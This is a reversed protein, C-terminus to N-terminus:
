PINLFSHAKGSHLPFCRYFMLLPGHRLPTVHWTPTQPQNLLCHPTVSFKQSPSHHFWLLAKLHNIQFRTLSFFFVRSHTLTRTPTLTQPTCVEVLVWYLIIFSDYPLCHPSLATLDMWQLGCAAGSHSLSHPSWPHPTGLCQPQILCCNDLYKTPFALFRSFGLPHLCLFSIPWVFSSILPFVRPPPFCLCTHVSSFNLGWFTLSM